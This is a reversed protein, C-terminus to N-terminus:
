VDLRDHQVAGQPHEIRLLTSLIRREGDGDILRVPLGGVEHVVAPVGFAPPVPEALVRSRRLIGFGRGPPPSRIGGAVQLERLATLCSAERMSGRADVFGFLGRM